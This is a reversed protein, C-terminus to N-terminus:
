SAKQRYAATSAGKASLLLVRQSDLGQPLQESLWGKPATCQLVQGVNAAMSAPAERACVAWGQVLGDAATWHLQVGDAPAVAAAKCAVEVQLAAFPEDAAALAAALVAPAVVVVVVVAAAPGQRGAM